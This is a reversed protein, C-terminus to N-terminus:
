AASVASGFYDGPSDGDFTYLIKGDKGSLVRASGSDSGKNDDAYAGVILDGHGDGNVDGAASVASGFYDGPSDGDFTYLIKGDKGSLVRASGSDSGKNSGNNDDTPAGVIVDAHGDRNVDGAGSVSNGFEDGAADGNFTYLIKGDRGSLVRASGSNNGNNDDYRAGVILDAFGDRNVDGAGSVSGGFRDGASDGNFTYLHKQAAATAALLIVIALTLIRPLRHLPRPTRM